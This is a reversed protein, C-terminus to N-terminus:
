SYNDTARIKIQYITTRDDPTSISNSNIQDLQERDIDQNPITKVNASFKNPQKSDVALKEVMFWKLPDEYVTFQVDQGGFDLDEAAVKTVYTGSSGTKGEKISGEYPGDKFIPPENSDTVKM